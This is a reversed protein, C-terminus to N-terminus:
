MAHLLISSILGDKKLGTQDISSDFESLLVRLEDVRMSKLQKMSPVVPKIEGSISSSLIIPATVPVSTDVDNEACAVPADGVDPTYSGGEDEVEIIVGMNEDRNDNDDHADVIVDVDLPIATITTLVNMEYSESDESYYDNDDADCDEHLMLCENSVKGQNNSLTSPPALPINMMRSRISNLLEERLNDIRENIHANWKDIHGISVYVYVTMCVVLFIIIVHFLPLKFSTPRPFTFM